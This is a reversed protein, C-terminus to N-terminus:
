GKAFVLLQYGDNKRAGARAGIRVTILGSIVDDLTYGLRMILRYLNSNHRYSCLGSTEGVLRYGRDTMNNVITSKITKM